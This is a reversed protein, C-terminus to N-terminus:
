RLEFDRSSVLCSERLSIFMSIFYPERLNSILYCRSVEYREKIEKYPLTAITTTQIPHGVIMNVAFHFPHFPMSTSSIHDFLLHRSRRIQRTTRIALIVRLKGIKQRFLITFTKYVSLSKRFSWALFCSSPM